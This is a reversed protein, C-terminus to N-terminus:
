SSSFVGASTSEEKRVGRERVRPRGVREVIESGREEVEEEEEGLEVGVREVVEGVRGRGGVAGRRVRATVAKTEVVEAAKVEWRREEEETEEEGVM